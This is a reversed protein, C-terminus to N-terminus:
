STFIFLLSFALANKLMHIIIAPWLSKTHERLFTLVMSLAFTDLAAVWLLPAGSGFQLHGAGFVISTIVAAPWFSLAKRLGTYLFGRFLIEEVIPPLLVLSIGTLILETTTSASEFGTQQEQELDLSPILIKAVMLMLIYAALYVVIGLLAYGIHQWRPRTWGIASFRINRVRLYTFVSSVVLGQAIFMYSFQGLVANTFWDEIRQADWGFGMLVISLFVVAAFQTVLFLALVFFVVFIPRMGVGPEAPVTEQVSTPTARQQAVVKRRISLRKVRSQNSSDNSM